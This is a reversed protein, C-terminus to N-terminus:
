PSLREAVTVEAGGTKTAAGAAVCMTPSTCSVSQLVASKTGAPSPTPEITWASGDWREAVPLVIGPPRVQLGVATCAANSACSVGVLATPRGVAGPMPKQLSWTAGDWREALAVFRSIDGGAVTTGVATCATRSTCSVGVSRGTTAKSQVFTATRQLVWTTGDWLEAPLADSGAGVATCASPATCSVGNMPHRAPDGATQLTWRSGDWREILAMNATNTSYGGVATCITASACSVGDLASGSLAADFEPQTIAGGPNATRQVVWGAGNWREALTVDAGASDRYAGVATCARASTCSVATFESDTARAPIVVPQLAWNAGNWREALVGRSSQYLGYTGVSTASWGVAMCARASSCSIGALASQEAGAPNPTPQIAPGPSVTAGAIALSVTFAFWAAM